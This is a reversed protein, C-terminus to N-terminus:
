SAGRCHRVSMSASKSVKSEAYTCGLHEARCSGLSVMLLGSARRFADISEFLVTSSYLELRGAATQIHLSACVGGADRGRLSDVPTGCHSNQRNVPV